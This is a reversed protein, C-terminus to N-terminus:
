FMNIGFTLWVRKAIDDRLQPVDARASRGRWSALVQQIYELRMRGAKYEREFHKIMRKMRKVYQKRLIKRNIFIRYGLFDIGQSVPFIATKRNLRLRLKDALFKEIIKWLNHLFKKDEHLIIFDDMYRVYYKIKMDEKLFHDLENLYVNAFLQSPLNGVPIGTKGPTSDLVKNILWRTERCRIKKFLIAKLITKDINQFYKSIDCKLCYVKNGYKHRTIRLYKEVQEVGADVGRGVRCAFSADIFRREFIPEIVNCLAHHVVRDRFPAAMILRTKPDYVYFEKYEGPEYTKYLLDQQIGHLNEELKYAFKLVDAKSRKNRQALLFAHYLNRYDYIETYLNNFTKMFKPINPDGFFFYFLAGVTRDKQMSLQRM